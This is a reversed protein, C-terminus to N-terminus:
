QKTSWFRIHPSFGSSFAGTSTWTNTTTSTTTGGFNMHVIVPMPPAVPARRIQLTKLIDWAANIEQMASEDGGRDPHHKMALSKYSAEADKKFASLLVQVLQARTERHLQATLANFRDVLGLTRVAAAVDQNTRPRPM